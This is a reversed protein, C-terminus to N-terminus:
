RRSSRRRSGARSRTCPCKGTCSCPSWGPSSWRPSPIAPTTMAGVLYMAIGALETTMGAVSEERALLITHVFIALTVVILGVAVIWLGADEAYLGILAGILTILTFSRLGLPKEEVWERQLGVLLGLALALAFQVAPLELFETM